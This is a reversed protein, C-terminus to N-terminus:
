EEVEDIRKSFLTYWFDLKLQEIVGLWIIHNDSVEKSWGDMINNDKDMGLVVVGTLEDGFDELFRILCAKATLGSKPTMPTVENM